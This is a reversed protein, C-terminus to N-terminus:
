KLPPFERDYQQDINTPYFYHTKYYRDRNEKRRQNRTKYERPAFKVLLWIRQLGDKCTSTTGPSIIKHQLFQLIYDRQCHPNVLKNDILYKVTYFSGSKCARFFLKQFFAKRQTVYKWTLQKDSYKRLIYDLIKTNNESTNYSHAQYDVYDCLGLVVNDSVVVLKRRLLYKAIRCPMLNLRFRDTEWQIRIVKMLWISLRFIGHELLLAIAVNLWFRAKESAPDFIRTLVLWRMARFNNCLCINTIIESYINLIKQQKFIYELITSNTINYIHRSPRQLTGLHSFYKSGFLRYKSVSSLTSNPLFCTECKAEAPFLRINFNQNIICQGFESTNHNVHSIFIHYLAWASGGMHYTLVHKM